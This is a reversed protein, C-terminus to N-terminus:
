QAACAPCAPDKPLRVRRMAGSGADFLLITGARSTGLGVIERVAELAMMSGIVGTLAGLVGTAACNRAPDDMPAGVFCRYCPLAPDHGCFVGVQGDMAGVAGSILPVGMALAADAVILRTAFSDSGDIILDHGHLLADVNDADLRLPVAIAEVHPNLAHLRTAAAEAKMAGVDATAFAIQRQLNSLAVVDDDIITLRGAGAGALSLLCPSGLGGAGIVAVRARKLAAQGAGGFGPLIIQRAYRDLEDDTFNVPNGWSAPTAKRPSQGIGVGERM